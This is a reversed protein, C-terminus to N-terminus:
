GIHFESEGEPPTFNRQIGIMQVPSMRPTNRKLERVADAATGSPRVLSSPVVVEVVDNQGPPRLLTNQRNNDIDFVCNGEDDHQDCQLNVVLKVTSGDDSYADDLPGTMLVSCQRYCTAYHECVRAGAQKAVIGLVIEAAEGDVPVLRNPLDMCTVKDHNVYNDIIEKRDM